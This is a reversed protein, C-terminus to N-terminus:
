YAGSGRAVAAWTKWLIRMDLALSWNEVYRLDLRVAEEWPLDSRGGVQWLGTIGPKVAMRRRVNPSTLIAKEYPLAMWPRPGVLSMDGRLVNLLQPLEDVSWRRLWGGLRTLRPDARIKFLVGDMENRPELAPRHREADTVMTRFKYMSFPRGYRGLRTQRFLAPGGDSLRIAVALAVMVPSLVLLALAAGAKDMATKVVHRAGSLEPRVVRLLPVGAVPQVTTRSRGVELLAPALCLDAGTDALLWALERLWQGSLQSSPVVTVSDAGLAAAAAPVGDLGGLVPIGAIDPRSPGAHGSSALGPMGPVCAGVISLSHCKERRLATILEGIAAADGVVVARRTWFGRRQRWHLWNRLAYRATLDLLTVSPLAVVLWGRALSIKSAYSFIALGATVGVGTLVIKHFEETGVGIFRAEYGRALAVAACWLLPLAATLILYRAPIETRAHFRAVLAALGGALACSADSLAAARLYTTM